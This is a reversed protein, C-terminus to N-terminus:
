LFQEGIGVVALKICTIVILCTLPIDIVLYNLVKNYFLQSEMISRKEKINRIGLMLIPTLFIVIAINILSLRTLSGILLLFILSIATISLAAIKMTSYYRRQKDEPWRDTWNGIVTNRWFHHCAINSTLLLLAIVNMNIDNRIILGLSLTKRTSPPAHFIVTVMSCEPTKTNLPSTFSDIDGRFVLVRFPYTM